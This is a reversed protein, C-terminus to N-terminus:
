WAGWGDDGDEVAKKVEALKRVAAPKRPQRQAPSHHGSAISSAKSSGFTSTSGSGLLEQFFDDEAAVPKAREWAKSAAVVGAPSKPTRMSAAPGTPPPSLSSAKVTQPRLVPAAPVTASTNWNAVEGGWQWDQKVSMKIAQPSVKPQPSLSPAKDIQPPSQHPQQPQTPEDWDILLDDPQM